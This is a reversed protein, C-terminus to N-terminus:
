NTGIRVLGCQELVRLSAANDAAARADLPRLKNHELFASLACTAIGKGWYPKAILDLSQWTSMKMWMAQSQALWVERSSFPRLPTLRTRWFRQGIHWLLM